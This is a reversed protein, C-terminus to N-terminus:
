KKRFSDLSVVEGQAKEAAAPKEIVPDAAAETEAQPESPAVM